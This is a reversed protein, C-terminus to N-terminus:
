KRFGLETHSDGNAVVLQMQTTTAGEHHIDIVVSGANMAMVLFASSCTNHTTPLDAWTKRAASCLM